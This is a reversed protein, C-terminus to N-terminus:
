DRSARWELGLATMSERRAMLAWPTGPYETMIRKWTRSIAKTMDKVSKEKIQVGERSGIRWGNHIQPNLEPLSDSRVQALIFNYEYTYVLRAMVRALTYDYDALWRKSTEKDREKDAGKLKDLAAELEFIAVGPERQDKLFAAKIQPTIPGGPNTLTEKMVFKSNEKLARMAEVVAVRLPHEARLQVLKEEGQKDQESLRYLDSFTPGDASYSELSKPFPPLYALKLLNEGQGPLMARVPPIKNIEDLVGRVFAQSAADKGQQRLPQIVVEEALPEAPDYPGSGEPATGSLRATQELKEPTLLEKMKQNVKDALPAIPLSDSEKQIGTLGEQLAACLAQLFVSGAEFEIAKQGKVCSCWVQVKDPPKQLKADLIEGMEGSGPRENGRAPPYRCVDFILLKQWAPCKAVKDYLWQLPILTKADSMDGDLPVLYAEKEIDVAHGAFLLVIRDQERATDLFETITSEIVAKLTPQPNKAGDSLEFIETAPVNLPRRNMQDALAATSSGPYKEHRPSGYHLTNAFLYNNVNILLARRPFAGRVVKGPKRNKTKPVDAAGADDPKVTDGGSNTGADKNNRAVKSRSEKKEKAQDAPETKFLNALHPRAVFFVGAAVVVVSGVLLAVKGGAGSKARQQRRRAVPEAAPEPDDHFAFPDDNHPRHTPRPAQAPRGPQAAAPASRAPAEAPGSAAVASAAESGKARAQFVEGCHKCRMARGLWDAPIRLVNKCKPCKAQVVQTM